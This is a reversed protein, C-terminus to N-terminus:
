TIRLVEELTTWGALAAALGKYRLTHVGRSALLNKIHVVEPNVKIQTRLEDDVEVVEFIGVRGKYGTGNCRHCGQARLLVSGPNFRVGAAQDDAPTTNHETACSMCVRRALRQAIVASVGSAVVHAESGMDMLRTISDAASDTHLTSLVLHGTLSAQLAIKATESDRIEGVLIVDPDQRLIARLGTAFTFGAKPHVQGQTVNPLQLEVPDELTVINRKVADIESLLAYLTSTKGSGTPGAVVVMGGTQGVLRRMVTIEEDNMGLEHLGFNTRGLQLRMVVKEGHISPFTSVRLHIEPQGKPRVALTGDQPMRREAIDLDALVKIRSVLAQAIDGQIPQDEYLVGDVRYRLGLENQRPEIHIDSAAKRFATGVIDELLRVAYADRKSTENRPAAM